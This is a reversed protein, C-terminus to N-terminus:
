KFYRTLMFTALSGIAVGTLVGKSPIKSLMKESDAWFVTWAEGLRELESINHRQGYRMVEEAAKPELAMEELPRRIEMPYDAPDISEWRTGVYADTWEEHDPWPISNLYQSGARQHVKVGPLGNLRERTTPTPYGATRIEIRGEPTKRMIGSNHLMLVGDKVVTNKSKFPEDYLLATVSKQTVKRSM